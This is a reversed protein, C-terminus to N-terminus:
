IRETAVSFLENEIEMAVKYAEKFIYISHKGRAERCFREMKERFLMATKLPSVEPHLMLERFMEEAAWLRDSRRRFERPRNWWEPGSCAERIYEGAAELADEYSLTWHALIKDDM